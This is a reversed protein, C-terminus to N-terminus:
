RARLGRRLVGLNYRVRRGARRVMAPARGIAHGIARGQNGLRRSLRRAVRQAGKGAGRFIQHRALAVAGLGLVTAGLMPLRLLAVAARPPPLTEARAAAEICRASALTPGEGAVLFRAAAWKHIRRDEPSRRRGLAERTQRVLEAVDQASAAPGGGLSSFADIPRTGPHDRSSDSAVFVICHTGTLQALALALPNAGIVVAAAAITERLLVLDLAGSRDYDRPMLVVDGLNSFDAAQWPKTKGPAPRVVVTLDRLAPLKSGRLAALYERLLLPELAPEASLGPSGAFFAFPRGAELGLFERFEETSLLDAGAGSAYDALIAGTRHVRSRSSVRLSEAESATAPNWVLWDEPQALVVAPNVGADLLDASAVTPIGAARAAQMLAVQELGSDVATPLDLAPLVVVVDPRERRILARAPASVPVASAMAAVLRALRRRVWAPSGYFRDIWRLGPPLLTRQVRTRWRAERPGLRPDLFRMAAAAGLLAGAAEAWMGTRRPVVGATGADVFDGARDFAELPQERGATFVVVVNHREKQLVRVLPAYAELQGGSPAAVLVNLSQARGRRAGAAAGSLRAAAALVQLLLRRAPGPVPRPEPAHAAEVLDGLVTRVIVRAPVLRPGHPRAWASAAARTRDLEGDRNEAIAALREVHAEWSRTMAPWAATAACRVFTELREGAEPLDPLVLAVVPMGRWAAETMLRPDLAVLITAGDLVTAVHRATDDGVRRAVVEVGAHRDPVGRWAEVDGPSASVVVRAGALAPSGHSRVRRVWHEFAAVERDPDGDETGAFVVTPAQGPETKVPAPVEHGGGISGVVLTHRLRSGWARMLARRQATNWLCICDPADHLVGSAAGDAWSTAVGLTPIGLVRAARVFDTLGGGPPSVPALLIAEPRLDELLRLLVPPVPLQRELAEAAALAALRTRDHRVIFSAAVWRALRPATEIRGPRRAAPSLLVDVCGRLAISLARFPGALRPVRGLTLSECEHALTRLEPSSRPDQAEVLVHVDDGKASALRIINSLAVASECDAAFALLRRAM